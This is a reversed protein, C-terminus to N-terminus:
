LKSRVTTSEVITEVTSPCCIGPCTEVSCSGDLGSGESIDEDDLDTGSLPNLQAARVSIVFCTVIMPYHLLMKYNIKRTGFYM